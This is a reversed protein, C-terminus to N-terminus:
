KEKIEFCHKNLYFDIPMVHNGNADCTYVFDNVVKVVKVKKNYKNHLIYLDKKIEKKDKIM